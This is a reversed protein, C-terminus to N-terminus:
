LVKQLETVVKNVARRFWWKGFGRGTLRKKKYLWYAPTYFHNRNSGVIMIPGGTTAVPYIDILNGNETLLWTHSFNPYYYGDVYKLSFVKAIARGLIHCYPIIKKGKDDKGLDIDPLNSVATKIKNFLVIDEPPIDKVAYPIM